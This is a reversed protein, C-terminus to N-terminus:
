WYYYTKVGSNLSDYTYAIAKVTKGATVNIRGGNTILTGNTRTPSTGNTTYRLMVGHSNHLIYLGSSFQMFTPATTRSVEVVDSKVKNPATGIIKLSNGTITSAPIQAIFKNSSLSSSVGFPSYYIDVGSSIFTIFNGDNSIIPYPDQVKYFGRSAITSDQYGAKYAIAKVTAPEELYTLGDLYYEGNSKSPTTGDTTYRIFAGYTSTNIILKQGFIGFDSELSIEPTNVRQQNPTDVYDIGGMDIGGMDCGIMIFVMFMTQIMVFLKKNKNM